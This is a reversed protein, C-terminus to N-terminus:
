DRTWTCAACTCEPEPAQRRRRPVRDGDGIRPAILAAVLAVLRHVFM